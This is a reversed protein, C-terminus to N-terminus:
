SFNTLFGTVHERFPGALGRMVRGGSAADTARATEQDRRRMGFEGTALAAMSSPTRSRTTRQRQGAPRHGSSGLEWTAHSGAGSGAM